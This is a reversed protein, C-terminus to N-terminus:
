FLVAGESFWYTSERQHPRPETALVGQLTVHTNQEIYVDCYTQKVLSQESLKKM